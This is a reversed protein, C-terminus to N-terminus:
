VELEIGLSQAVHLGMTKRDNGSDVVGIDINRDNVTVTTIDGQVRRAMAVAEKKRRPKVPPCNKSWVSHM